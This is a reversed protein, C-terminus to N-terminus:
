NLCLWILFQFFFAFFTLIYSSYVVSFAMLSSERACLIAPWGIFFLHDHQWTGMTIECENNNNGLSIIIMHMMALRITISWNVKRLGWWM